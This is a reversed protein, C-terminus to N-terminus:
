SLELLVEIAIAARNQRNFLVHVRNKEQRSFVGDEFVVITERDDSLGLPQFLDPAPVPWDRGSPNRATLSM